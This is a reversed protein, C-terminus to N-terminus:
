KRTSGTVCPLTNAVAGGVPFRNVAPGLAIIVAWSEDGSDGGEEEAAVDETQHVEALVVM